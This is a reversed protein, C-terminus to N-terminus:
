SPAAKVPHGYGNAADGFIGPRVRNWLSSPGAKAVAAVRRRRNGGIAPATNPLGM